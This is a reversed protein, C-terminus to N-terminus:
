LQKIVKWSYYYHPCCIISESVCVFIISSVVYLADCLLVAGFHVSPKYNWILYIQYFYISNFISQLNATFNQSFKDQTMPVKSYKHCELLSKLTKGEDWNIRDKTPVCLLSCMFCHTCNICTMCIISWSRAVSLANYCVAHRIVTVFGTIGRNEIWFQSWAYFSQGM